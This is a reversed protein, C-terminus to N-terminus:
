EYLVVYLYLNYKWTHYMVEHIDDSVVYSTQGTQCARVELAGFLRRAGDMDGGNVCASILATYTVLNPEVGATMMQVDPFFFFISGLFRAFFTLIPLVLFAGALM